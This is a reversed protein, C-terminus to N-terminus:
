DYYCRSSNNLSDRHNLGCVIGPHVRTGGNGARNQQTVCSSQAECLCRCAGLDKPNQKAFVGQAPAPRCRQLRERGGAKSTAGVAGRHSQDGHALGATIGGGPEQAQIM